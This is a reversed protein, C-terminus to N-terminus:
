KQEKGAVPKESQNQSTTSSQSIQAKPSMGGLGAMSNTLHKAEQKKDKNSM